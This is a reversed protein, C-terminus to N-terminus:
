IIDHLAFTHKSLEFGRAELRAELAFDFSVSSQRAWCIGSSVWSAFLASVM